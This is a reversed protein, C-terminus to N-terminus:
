TTRYLIKRIGNMKKTRPPVLSPRKLSHLSRALPKTRFASSRRCIKMLGFANKRKPLKPLPKAKPKEDESESEAAKKPKAEAKPKAAPAADVKIDNAPAAVTEPAAPTAPTTVVTKVENGNSGGTVRNAKCGQMLLCAVAVNMGVALGIKANM